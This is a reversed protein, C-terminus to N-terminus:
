VARLLGGWVFGTIEWLRPKKRRSTYPGEEQRKKTKAVEPIEELKQLARKKGM